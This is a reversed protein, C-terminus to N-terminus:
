FLSTLQMFSKCKILSLCENTIPNLQTIQCSLFFRCGDWLLNNNTSFTDKCSLILWLNSWTANTTWWWFNMCTCAQVFIHIAGKLQPASVFYKIHNGNYELDHPYFTTFLCSITVLFEIYLHYILAGNITALSIELLRSAYFSLISCQLPM